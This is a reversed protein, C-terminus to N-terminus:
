LLFREFAPMIAVNKVLADYEARKAPNPSGTKVAKILLNKPTDLPSIYEMASVRYGLSELLLVRLGDTLVAALRTRLIGHELVPTMDPLSFQEILEKHCCPVCAINKAGARVALALAMDTATDCAHLSLVLDPPTEPTYAQIDTCVFSMNHYGLEQALRRSSDVVGEAYDLGTIHVRLGLVDRLYYNLAFSLYSKGCACDIIHLSRQGGAKEVLPAVLEVFYDIQNYKRVMSNKIKGNAAVIGMAQLLKQAGPLAVLYERQANPNGDAPLDPQAATDSGTTVGKEDARLYYVAGRQEYRFDLSDYKECETLLHECFNTFDAAQTRGLYRMCFDDTEGRLFSAEFQRRGSAFVARAAVFFDVDRAFRSAFGTLLLRTKNIIKQNM